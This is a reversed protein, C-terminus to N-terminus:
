IVTLRLLGQMSRVVAGLPVSFMPDRSVIGIVPLRVAIQLSKFLAGRGALLM